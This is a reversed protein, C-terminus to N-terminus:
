FGRGFQFPNNIWTWLRQNYEQAKTLEAQTNNLEAETVQRDKKEMQWQAIFYIILCLILVSGVSIIIKSQNREWFNPVYGYSGLHTIM